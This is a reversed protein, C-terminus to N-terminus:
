LWSGPLVVGRKLDPVSYTSNTRHGNLQLAIPQTAGDVVVVFTADGQTFDFPSSGNL